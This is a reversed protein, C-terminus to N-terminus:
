TFRSCRVVRSIPYASINFLRLERISKARDSDISRYLRLRYDIEFSRNRLLSLVKDPSEIYDSIAIVVGKVYINGNETYIDTTEDQYIFTRKERIDQKILRAIDSNM